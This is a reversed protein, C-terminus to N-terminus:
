CVIVSVGFPIDLEVFMELSSPSVEFGATSSNSRYGNFVDVTLEKKLGKLYEKHPKLIDWLKQIHVDLHRDEPVPSDYSWMDRDWVINNNKKSKPEGKKHSYTPKLGLTKSIQNLNDIDGFIRLTSSFCFYIVEEESYDNEHMKQVEM